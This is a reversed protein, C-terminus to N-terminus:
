FSNKSNLADDDNDADWIRSGVDEAWQCKKKLIRGVIIATVKIKIKKEENKIKGSLCIGLTPRKLASQDVKLIKM